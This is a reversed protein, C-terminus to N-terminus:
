HRLAAHTGAHHAPKPQNETRKEMQSATFLLVGIAGFIILAMLAIVLVPM